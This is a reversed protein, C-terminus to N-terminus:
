KDIYQEFKERIDQPFRVPKIAHSDVCVLVVDLTAIPIDKGNEPKVITHTMVFSTNKVAKVATDIRLLDDLRAPAHYEIEIHKVVFLLNFDEQVQSSSYGIHRLFETRAREGFRIYGAHYVIGGADTDEYYIRIPISHHTM